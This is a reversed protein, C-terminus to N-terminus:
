HTGKENVLTLNSAFFVNPYGDVGYPGSDVITNGDNTLTVAAGGVGSIEGLRYSGLTGDGTLTLNGLGIYLADIYPGSNDVNMLSANNITGEMTLSGASRLGGISVDADIYLASTIGDFVSDPGILIGGVGSAPGTLKGGWITANNIQVMASDAANIVGGVNSVTTDQIILGGINTSAGTNDTLEMLGANVLTRGDTDIVLGTGSSKTADIVGHAENVLTLDGMGIQGAGSITNAVNTLTVGSSAGHIENDANSSLIVSGAGSLTTNTLLDLSTTDGTSGLTIAGTNDISGGLGLTAGDGVEILGANAGADTGKTATFSGATIDLEGTAALEVGQVTYSSSATVTYDASGAADLIADDSAGPVAGTSWDAATDFNASVAKSSDITTM